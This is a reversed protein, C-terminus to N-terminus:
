RRVDDTFRVLSSVGGATQETAVPMMIPLSLTFTAGQGLGPSAAELRGGHRQALNRAILLGFGLGRQASAFGALAQEDVRHFREFIQALHEPAIGVGEDHVKIFLEAQGEHTTTGIDITITGGNPSYRVANTVLNAVIQQVRDADWFGEIREAMANIIITHQQSLERLPEAMARVISVIECVTPQIQLQGADLHSIDLLTDVLGSLRRVQQEIIALYRLTRQDSAADRSLRQSLLEAYGRLSTLPTKLEHSAISLFDDKVQQLQRMERLDHFIIVAGDVQGDQSHIPGSSMSVPVKEGAANILVAEFGSVEQGQLSLNTPGYEHNIASGDNHQIQWATRRDEVATPIATGVIRYMADNAQVLNGDQDLIMVGDVISGITTNLREVTARLRRNALRARRFASGAGVMALYIAGSLALRAWDGELPVVIPNVTPIFFYWVLFFALIATVFGARAGWTYSVALVVILFLLSPNPIRVLTASVVRVFTTVTLVAIVGAFAGFYPTWVWAPLRRAVGSFPM